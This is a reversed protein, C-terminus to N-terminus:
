AGLELQNKVLEYYKGKMGTLEQHTGQEVIRGRDLVIINDANSVTSLRHAVVVVTRGELFSSMNSMIINENTSDLANTAEDLFLYQPNKYVARAILIRQRQGQSIGNGEAGIRTNYKQPMAEIFGEINAVKAAYALRARDPAEDGVSINNGITDSFIFGDQMVTGCQSRWNKHSIRSLPVDGVTIRGEEPEYFRLLLKLLTTKGSGSMGVIATTRGEPIALSVNKLVPDNGAGPYRFTTEDFRISRSLPLDEYPYAPTGEEDPIRHVEDLRELSIKADQYVQSFHIFQEIPSNMQGVVYQVAMMAGLTMDGNIVAQASLFTILINKGQNIFQGGALQYQSLSLSSANFRFLRAQIGEWQWRKQQECNSLKIEQMGNILQILSSQGEAAIAFQKYDLQRRKRIFLLVWGLYLASSLLFVAFILLRYYALVAGFIVLNFLSFLGNLTSGTLFTEIRRQDNMRQMIDGTMRNDFFSVPLRMLKSLFDTLVSFNVRSSIHLLIWSRLFEVSTSGVFLLLQAILIVYVFKLNKTNIGVDVLGQTLFPTILQMLSAAALGFVLQAILQKYKFLYRFIYTWNLTTEAEELHDEFAPTTSLALAIGAKINPHPLWNREFEQKRYSMLSKSPDALYYTGKRIKYLVVFHNQTWHLICPLQLQDLEDVTLRVGVSHFGINEAAESLGLLSVGDKSIRCLERMRQASYAKGYHKAIMRLCAPGCDMQDHQRYLVFAM